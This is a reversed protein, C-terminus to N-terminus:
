QNDEIFVTAALKAIQRAKKAPVDKSILYDYVLKYITDFPAEGTIRELLELDTMISVGNWVIQV